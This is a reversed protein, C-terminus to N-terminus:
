DDCTLWVELLYRDDEHVGGMPPMIPKDGTAVALIMAAQDWVDAETDFVVGEPAGNRDSSTSAHCSQCNETVFGRGWSDWTVVPSTACLGTDAPETDVEGSDGATDTAVTTAPGATDDGGACGVWLLLALATM